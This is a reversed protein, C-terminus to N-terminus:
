RVGSIAAERLRALLQEAEPQPPKSNPWYADFRVKTELPDNSTIYLVQIQPSTSRLGLKRWQWRDFPSELWANTFAVSGITRGEPVTNMLWEGREGLAFSKGTGDTGPVVFQEARLAQDVRDRVVELKEQVRVEGPVPFSGSPLGAILTVYEHACWGAVMSAGIAAIPWRTLRWAPDMRMGWLRSGVAANVGNALIFFGFGLLLYVGWRPFLGLNPRTPGLFAVGRTWGFNIRGFEVNPIAEKYATLQRVLRFEDGKTKQEFHEIDQYPFRWNIREHIALAGGVVLYYGIICHALVVNCRVIHTFATDKKWNLSIIPFYRRSIALIGYLLAFMLAGGLLLSWARLNWMALAATWALAFAGSCLLVFPIPFRRSRGVPTGMVASASEASGNIAEVSTKVESVKQYRREPERELTRLVVDDLRVDVQVRKSPPDFRGMPVEGTLMEYFVVGLSYIDARHDVGQSSRRQEPAMYEATGMVEGVGTLTFEKAEKSVIKALGFDAIKVRGQKDILINAPKIDRHVIGSDHAFQLADCIQPVIRLAEAPTLSHAEIMRRLDVGDIYEMVFYCLGDTDGFDYITVINPHNLLALSRAERLFRETYEDSKGFPEPLIKIAVLRGLKKQRAKYVEGMGGRGLLELLEFQPFAAALTEVEARRFAAEDAAMRSATGLGLGRGLACAPCVGEPADPPIPTGCAPCLTPENM